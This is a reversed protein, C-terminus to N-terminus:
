LDIEVFGNKIRIRRVHAIFTSFLKNKTPPTTESYRLQLTLDENRLDQSGSM